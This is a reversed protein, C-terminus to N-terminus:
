PKSGDNANLGVTSDDITTKEAALAVDCVITSPTSSKTAITSLPVTSSETGRTEMIDKHRVQYALIPLLMDWFTFEPWFKAAFHIHCSNSAQWLLFDSLRIEGSTRVLLDLDEDDGTGLCREIVEASVDEVAIRGDEVAQVVKRVAAAIEHRSTYPFCINLTARTNHRTMAEANAAAAQLDLPLMHTEGLVRVRVGHRTALDSQSAFERFKEHALGMLMGVEDHSRSFNEISFAYVTVTSVGLQLCWDLTEQLRGFGERHGQGTSKQRGKAYRRNGDMVFAVHKPIPGLKLLRLAVQRARQEIKFHQIFLPHIVATWITDLTFSAISLIVTTLFSLISLWNTIQLLKM